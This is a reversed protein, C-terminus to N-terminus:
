NKRDPVSQCGAQPSASQHEESALVWCVHASSMTPYGSATPSDAGATQQTGPLQTSHGDIKAVQCLNVGLRLARQKISRQRWCGAPTHAQCQAIARPQRLTPVPRKHSMPRRHWAATHPSHRTAANAIGLELIAMLADALVPARVSCDDVDGLEEGEDDRLGSCTLRLGQGLATQPLRIDEYAENIAVLYSNLSREKVLGEMILHSLYLIVTREIAPLPCRPKWGYVDPLTETCFAVFRHWKGAYSEKTGTRRGRSLLLSAREVLPGGRQLDPGLVTRM